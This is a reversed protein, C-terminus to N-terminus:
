RRLLAPDQPVLRVLPIDRGFTSAREQYRPVNPKEVAVVDFVSAREDGLTVHGRAPSRRRGVQIWCESNARINHAWAPDKPGGSNSGIVVYDDEFRIYPLVRTRPEGSKAGITTLLLVPTYPRGGLRANIWSFFSFGTARVLAKDAAFGWPKQLMALWRNGYSSFSADDDSPGVSTRTRRATV